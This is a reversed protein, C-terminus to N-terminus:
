VDIAKTVEADLAHDARGASFHILEAEGTEVTVIRQRDIRRQVFEDHLFSFSTRAREGILLLMRSQERIQLSWYVRTMGLPALFRVSLRRDGSYCEAFMADLTIQSIRRRREPHCKSLRPSIRRRAYIDIKSVFQLSPDLREDLLRM